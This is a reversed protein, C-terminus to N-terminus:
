PHWDPSHDPEGAKIKRVFASSSYFDKEACPILSVRGALEAGMIQKGKYDDGKFLVDPAIASLITEHYPEDSIIVADVNSLAAITQARKLESIYPKESGKQERITRDSAIIVILRQCQRSCDEIFSVHGPHLIDFAGSTIGIEDGDAARWGTVMEKLKDLTKVKELYARTPGNRATLSPDISHYHDRVAEFLSQQDPHLLNCRGDAVDDLDFVKVDGVEPKHSAENLTQAAVAAKYAHDAELRTVHDKVIAIEDANLEYMMGMVIRREGNPFSLTKTDMPKLRAPDIHLLPSGDPQKFEEEVERACGTRADEPTQAPTVLASGPTETLNIFGGPITFATPASAPLYHEGAAGLVVKRVGKEVYTLVVGSGVTAKQVEEIIPADLTSWPPLDPWNEAVVQRLLTKLEKPPLGAQEFIANVRDTLESM